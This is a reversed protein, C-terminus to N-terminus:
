KGAPGRSRESLGTVGLRSGSAREGTAVVLGLHSGGPARGPTCHGGRRPQANTHSTVTTLRMQGTDLTVHDVVERQEPLPGDKALRLRLWRRGHTEEAM